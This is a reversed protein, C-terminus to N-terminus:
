NLFRDDVKAKTTLNKSGLWSRLWVFAVEIFYVIAVAIIANGIIHDFFFWWLFYCIVLDQDLSRFLFAEMSEIGLAGVPDKTLVFCKDQELSNIQFNSPVVGLLRSTWNKVFSIPEQRDDAKLFKEKLFNNLLKKQEEILAHLNANDSSVRKGKM